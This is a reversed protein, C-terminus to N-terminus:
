KGKGAVKAAAEGKAKAEAEADAKVKAEAAAKAAAEAQTTSNGGLVVVDGVPEAVGAKTFETAIADDVTGTWGVPFVQETTPSLKVRGAKIFKIHV